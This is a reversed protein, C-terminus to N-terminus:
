AGPTPDYSFESTNDEADTATAAFYRWGAPVGGLTVTFKANGNADTTV